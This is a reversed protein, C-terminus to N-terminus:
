VTATGTFSMPNAQISYNLVDEPRIEAAEMPCLVAGRLSRKSFLLLALNDDFSRIDPNPHRAILYYVYVPKQQGIRYARDTAQDEKSPNWHRSFHIVHNAGTVTLGVGAAVPSMIVIDFNPKSNFNKVIGLRTGVLKEHDFGTPTDGNVIEPKIGYQGYALAALFRQSRRYEAFIIAKENKVKIADLIRILALAKASDDVRELAELPDGDGAFLPHECASKLRHLVDLIGRKWEIEGSAKRNNYDTIIGDYTTM